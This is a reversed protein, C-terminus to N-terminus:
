SASNNNCAINIGNYSVGWFYIDHKGPFGRGNAKNFGNYTYEAKGKLTTASILLNAPNFNYQHSLTSNELIQTLDGIPDYNCQHEPEDYYLNKTM